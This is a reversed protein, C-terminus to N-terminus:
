QNIRSKEPQERAMGIFVASLLTFVYAQIFAVLLELCLMFIGFLVAVLTMPVNVAAGLRATVFIVCVLGLIVAHGAFINAFLRVMLAFPKTIVGLLEVVPMIPAPVKLWAPVDPWFIDKWYHKNGSFNVVLMTALALVATVAINGTVNAGGPFVPILGMLNNVLIFFFMTLLFPAFRRHEAGVCPAIVEEDIYSVVLDVAGRIGRPPTIRGKSYWRALPLILLLVIVSNILLALANRTLSLDWRPRAWEGNPDRTVIRGQHEGEAAIKYGKYEAGHELRASSFFEWGQADKVIVPLPMEVPGFIPWFYSDQLHGLVVEKVDLDPAPEQAAAPIPLLLSLLLLLLASINSKLRM